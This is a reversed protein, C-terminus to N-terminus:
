TRGSGPGRDPPSATPTPAPTATPEQSPEEQEQENGAEDGQGGPAPTARPRVSDPSPEETPTVSPQPEPPPPCYEQPIQEPLMVEPEGPCWPAARLGTRPDIEVTVYEGAPVTFDRVPAGALADEMFSRWIMAPFTGGSVRIGHVSTMPVSGDPYGVWVATVLNPTYGVFWADAYDNTTGTKGAAPRALDAATGTGREIVDELAQTLLYANGVSVVDKGVEQRAELMRGDSLHISEITTPTIATGNNALTAYAAAMDVVSVEEAGLALAPVPSLDSAVGMLHAQSAVTDGGLQLGLRAYVGNVSHVLAEDLPMLGYGDGEANGVTWTEGGGLTFTAPSSEYLADLEIGSELAAAAVIPKFVSGAQRGSGGGRAGLALNVQSASWDRGGVMAVVAGTRPRLAVIATEPDGPEDLHTGVAKEAAAQLRPSLTSAVRMGGEHLLEDREDPTRGLRPDRLLEQRLAEVFYPERATRARAPPAIDLPARAARRASEGDLMGLETMRRLVYARRELARERYARPDYLSPARIVAALLAADAAALTELGHGFYTHAAVKIGYAGDGFYVTNLYRELIEQKSLRREIALALRLERAKRELTRGPERFFTNKVYQQTITSGGQVVRRSELNALAARAMARFDFGSHEFFRADETAVVADEVVQPIKEISVYARNQKYFRALFTGDAAEITSRLALPREADLDVTPLSCASFLMAVVIVAATAPGKHRV